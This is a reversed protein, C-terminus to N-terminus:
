TWGALDNRLISNSSRKFSEKGKPVLTAEVSQTYLSFSNSRAVIVRMPRQWTFGSVKSAICGIPSVVEGREINKLGFTQRGYPRGIRLSKQFPMTTLESIPLKM